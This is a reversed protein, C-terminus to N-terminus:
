DASPNRKTRRTRITIISFVVIAVILAVIGVFRYRMATSNGYLKTTLNTFVIASLFSGLGPCICNTISTALASSTENTVKSVSFVCTPMMLSLATGGIFVALFTVPLSTPFWSLLLMCVSIVVFALCATYEGIKKSIKGFFIGCIAGGAMQIAMAYGAVTSNGMNSIHTSINSGIVNYVMMLVFIFGGFLFVDSHLSLKQGSTDSKNKNSIANKRNPIAYAAYLGVPLALMLMLYGGFWFLSALAGGCLSLMIGGGNIFSTQYGSIARREQTNFFDFILSSAASVFGSLGLGLCCNLLWLHWFQSHVFISLIGTFGVLFLGSVIVTKKSIIARSILLAMLITVFPSIINPMQMATQVLALSSNPFAVTTIQNISPSLALSPMQVVAILLVAWMIKKKETSMQEM